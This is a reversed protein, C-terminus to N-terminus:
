AHSIKRSYLQAKPIIFYFGVQWNSTIRRAEGDEVFADTLSSLIRGAREADGNETREDLTTNM